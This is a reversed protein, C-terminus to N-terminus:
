LYTNELTLSRVIFYYVNTLPCQDSRNNNFLNCRKLNKFTLVGMKFFNISIYRSTYM